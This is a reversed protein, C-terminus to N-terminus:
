WRRRRRARRSRGAPKNLDGNLFSSVMGCPGSSEISISAITIRLLIVLREGDAEGVLAELGVLEVRRRVSQLGGLLLQLLHVVVHDRDPIRKAKNGTSRADKQSYKKECQLRM